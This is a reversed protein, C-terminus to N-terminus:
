VKLHAGAKDVTLGDYDILTTECGKIQEARPAMIM